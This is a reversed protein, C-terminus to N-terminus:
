GTRSSLTQKFVYSHPPVTPTEYCTCHMIFLDYETWFMVVLKELNWLHKSARLTSWPHSILARRTGVWSVCGSCSCPLTSSLFSGKHKGEPSTVGQETVAGTVPQYKWSPTEEQLAPSSKACELNICHKTNGARVGAVSRQTAAYLVPQIYKYWPRQAQPLPGEGISRSFLLKSEEFTLPTNLYWSWTRSVLKWTRKYSKLFNSICFTDINLGKTSSKLWETLKWWQALMLWLGRM